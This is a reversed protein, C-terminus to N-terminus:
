FQMVKKLQRELPLFHNQFVENLNLNVKQIIIIKKNNTKYFCTSLEMQSKKGLLNLENPLKNGNNNRLM